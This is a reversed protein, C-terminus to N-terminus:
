DSFRIHEVVGVWAKETQIGTECGVDFRYYAVQDTRVRRVRPRHLLARARVPQSLVAGFGSTLMQDPALVIDHRPLGQRIANAGILIPLADPYAELFHRDFKLVDIRLVKRYAGDSTRVTDNVRVLYAPVAGFSTMIRTKSEIGTIGVDDDHLIDEGTDGDIDTSEAKSIAALREDDVQPSFVPKQRSPTRSVVRDAAGAEELPILISM